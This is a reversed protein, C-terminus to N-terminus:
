HAHEVTEPARATMDAVLEERRAPGSNRWEDIGKCLRELSQTEALVELATVERADNEPGEYRRSAATVVYQEAARLMAREDDQRAELRAASILVALPGVSPRVPWRGIADRSFLSSNVANRLESGYQTLTEIRAAVGLFIDRLATDLRQQQEFVVRDAEAQVRANESDEAIKRAKRAILVSFTAVLVSAFAAASPIVIDTWVLFVDDDSLKASVSLARTLTLAPFSLHV